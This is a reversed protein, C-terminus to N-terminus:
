RQMEAVIVDLMFKGVKADDEKAANFDLSGHEGAESTLLMHGDWTPSTEDYDVIVTLMIRAM